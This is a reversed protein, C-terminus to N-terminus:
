KGFFKRIDDATMKDNGEKGVILAKGDIVVTVADGLALCDKVQPLADPLAFYADSGWQIRLAAMEPKYAQDTWVGDRLEFTRGAVYRVQV